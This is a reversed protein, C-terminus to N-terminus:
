RDARHLRFAVRIPLQQGREGEIFVIEEPLRKLRITQRRVEVLNDLSTAHGDPVTFLRDDRTALFRSFGALDVGGTEDLALYDALRRFLKPLVVVEDELQARSRLRFGATTVDQAWVGTQGCRAAGAVDAMAARLEVYLQAYFTPFVLGAQLLAWNASRRLRAADLFVFGLDSSRGRPAGSYVFAVARGYKDAFRTLIHGTTEQPVAEVVSGDDARRVQRFGLEALLQDAATTALGM